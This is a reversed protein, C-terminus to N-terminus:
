LSDIKQWFALDNAKENFGGGGCIGNIVFATGIKHQIQSIVFNTVRLFTQKYHSRDFLLFQYGWNVRLVKTFSDVHIYGIRLRSLDVDYPYISNYEHLIDKMDSPDVDVIAPIALDINDSVPKRSMNIVKRNLLNQTPVDLSASGSMQVNVSTLDDIRWIDGDLLLLDGINFMRNTLMLTMFQFHQHLNTILYGLVGIYTKFLDVGNGFSNQYGYIRSVAIFCVPAILLYAYLQISELIRETTFLENTFLKKDFYLAYLFRMLRVQLPEDSKGPLSACFEPHKQLVHNSVIREAQSELLEVVDDSNMDIWARVFRWIDRRRNIIMMDIDPNAPAVSEIDFHLPNYSQEEPEESPPVEALCKALTFERQTISDWEQSQRNVFFFLKLAIIGLQVFCFLSAFVVFSQNLRLIVSQSTSVNACSAGDFRCYFVHYSLHQYVYTSAIWLAVYTFYLVNREILIFILFYRALYKLWLGFTLEVHAVGVTFACINMLRFMPTYEDQLVCPSAVRECLSKMQVTEKGAGFFLFFSWAIALCIHLIWVFVPM